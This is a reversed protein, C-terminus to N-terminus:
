FPIDYQDAHTEATRRGRWWATFEESALPYPNMSNAAHISAYGKMWPTTTKAAEIGPAAYKPAADNPMNVFVIAM